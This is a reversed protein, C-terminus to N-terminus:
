KYPKPQSDEGKESSSGRSIVSNDDEIEGEEMDEHDYPDSPPSTTPEERDILQIPSMNNVLLDIVASDAEKGDTESNDEDSLCTKSTGKKGRTLIPPNTSQATPTTNGTGKPNKKNGKKAKKKPTKHRSVLEWEGTYEREEGTEKAKERQRKKASKNHLEKIINLTKLYLTPINELTSNSNSHYYDNHAELTREKTNNTRTINLPHPPPSPKIRISLNPLLAASKQYFAYQNPAFIRLLPRANKVHVWEPKDTEEGMKVGFRKCIQELGKNSTIVPIGELFGEGAIRRPTFELPSNAATYQNHRLKTAGIWTIDTAKQYFGVIGASPTAKVSNILCKLQEENECQVRIEKPSFAIPHLYPRKGGDVRALAEIIPLCIVDKFILTIQKRLTLEDPQFYDRAPFPYYPNFTAEANNKGIKEFDIDGIENIKQIIIEGSTGPYPKAIFNKFRSDSTLRDDLSELEIQDFEVACKHNIKQPRTVLVRDADVYGLPDEFLSGTDEEVKELSLSTFEPTQCERGFRLLALNFRSDSRYIPKGLFFTGLSFQTTPILIGELFNEKHPNLWSALSTIHAANTINTADEIRKLLFITDIKVPPNELQLFTNIEKTWDDESVNWFDLPNILISLPNNKAKNRFTTSTKNFRTREEETLEEPAQGGITKFATEIIAVILSDNYQKKREIQDLNCVPFTANELDPAGGIFLDVRTSQLKSLEKKQTPALNHKILDLNREDKPRISVIKLKKSHNFVETAIKVETGEPLNCPEALQNKYFFRIQQNNPFNTAPNHLLIEGKAEGNSVIRGLLFHREKNPSHYNLDSWVPAIIRVEQYTKGRICRKLPPREPSPNPDYMFQGFDPIQNTDYYGYILNGEKTVGQVMDQDGRESDYGNIVPNWGERIKTVTGAFAYHRVEREPPPTNDANPPPQTQTRSREEKRETRTNINSDISPQNQDWVYNPGSGPTMMINEKAQHQTNQPNAGLTNYTRNPPIPTIHNTNNINNIPPNPRPNHPNNQTPRNNLHNATMQNNNPHHLHHIQNFQPLNIHPNNIHPIIPRASLQPNSMYYPNNYQPIQRPPINNNINNWPHPIHNYPNPHPISQQTPSRFTMTQNSNNHHPRQTLISTLDQDHQYFQNNHTNINLNNFHQTPPSPNPSPPSPSNLYYDIHPLPSEKRPELLIDTQSHQTLPDPTEEPDNETQKSENENGDATDHKMENLTALEDLIETPNPNNGQPTIGMPGMTNVENPHPSPPTCTPNEDNKTTEKDNKKGNTQSQKEDHAENVTADTRARDPDFGQPNIGTPDM